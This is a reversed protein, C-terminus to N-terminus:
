IGAEGAIEDVAEDGPEDVPPKVLTVPVPSLRVMEQSVSGLVAARLGGGHATMIVAECGNREVMEVLMNAPDGTATDQTVPLGAAQLLHVASRMLDHGAAENVQELVAPDHAVMLEYLTATEQVNAVVFRAKLGAGVLRLAHRVALLAHESGDVPILIKIM